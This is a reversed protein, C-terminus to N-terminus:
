LSLCGPRSSVPLQACLTDRVPDNVAFSSKVYMGLQQYCSEINAPVAQSCVSVAREMNHWDTQVLRFAVTNGCISNIAPTLQSCFSMMRVEDFDYSRSFVGMTLGEICYTRERSDLINKCHTQFAAPAALTDAHLIWSERICIARIRGAFQDCYAKTETPQPAFHEVLAKDEPEIPQFVQMFVGEYCTRIDDKNEIQEAFATCVANSKEVDGATVYMVLHGVGHICNAIQAPTPNWSTRQACVDSILTLIEDISADPLSEERFREQFAGHSGGNGCIGYPARAVIDKWKSPDKATEKASINHALVHCYTYSPDLEQIKATITFAEEMSFGEDMFGPVVREYCLGKDLAASCETVAKKAAVEVPLLTNDHARFFAFLAIGIALVVFVSVLIRICISMRLSYREHGCDARIPAFWLCVLAAVTYVLGPYNSYTVM